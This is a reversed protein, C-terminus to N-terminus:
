VKVGRGRLERLVTDLGRKDIERIGATSVRLKVFRKEAESWFRRLQLNPELRVKTKRNSHSVRNGGMFRKGTVDCVKSV